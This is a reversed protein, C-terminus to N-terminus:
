KIRTVMAKPLDENFEFYWKGVLSINVQVAPDKLTDFLKASGKNVQWQQGNELTFVTGTQWGSFSGIIRSKFPENSLVPVAMPAVPASAKVEATNKEVAVEIAQTTQEQLLQNLLALQKASLTDLGTAQMQEATLRKELPINSSQAETAHSTVMLILFLSLSKLNMALAEIVIHCSYTM